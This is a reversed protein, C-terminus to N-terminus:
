RHVVALAILHAGDHADFGVVRDVIDFLEAADGMVSRRQAPFVLVGLAIDNLREIGLLIQQLKRAQHLHLVLDLLEAFQQLGLVLAIVDVAVAADGLAAIFAVARIRVAM